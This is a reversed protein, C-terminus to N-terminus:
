TELKYLQLEMRRSGVLHESRIIGTKTKIYVWKVIEKDISLDNLILKKLTSRQFNGSGLAYVFHGIALLQLHELNTTSRVYEIAWNLDKRLLSDAEEESMPYDFYQGKQIAHGYGVTLVGALCRYPYARYGEHWKLTDVLMQYTKDYEVRILEKKVFEETKTSLNDPLYAEFTTTRSGVLITLILLFQKTNM